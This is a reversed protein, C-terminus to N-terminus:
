PYHYYLNPVGNTSRWDRWGYKVEANGSVDMVFPQIIKCKRFGYSEYIKELKEPNKANAIELIMPIKCEDLCEHFIEKLIKRDFSEANKMTKMEEKTKAQSSVYVLDYFLTQTQVDYDQNIGLTFPLLVHNENIAQVVKRSRMMKPDDYGPAPKFYEPNSAMWQSSLLAFAQPISTFVGKSNRNQIYDLRYVIMHPRTKEDGNQYSGYSKNFKDLYSDIESPLFQGRSLKQMCAAKKKQVASKSGSKNSIGMFKWFGDKDSIRQKTLIYTLVHKENTESVYEEGLEFQRKVNFAVPITDMIPRDPVLNRFQTSKKEDVHQKNSDASLPSEAQNGFASMAVSSNAIGNLKLPSPPKAASESSSSSSSASSLSLTLSPTVPDHNARQANMTSPLMMQMMQFVQKYESLYNAGLYYEYESEHKNFDGPKGIIESALRADSSSMFRYPYPPRSANQKQLIKSMLYKYYLKKRNEPVDLKRQNIEMNLLRNFSESITEYIQPVLTNRDIMELIAHRFKDICYLNLAKKTYNSPLQMTSLSSSSSSSSSSVAPLPTDHGFLFRLTSPSFLKTKDSISLPKLVRLHDQEIVNTFGNRLESILNRSRPCMLLIKICMDQLLTNDQSSKLERDSLLFEMENKTVVAFNTNNLQDNHVLIPIHPTPSRSHRSSLSLSPPIETQKSPSRDMRLEYPADRLNELNLPSDIKHKPSAVKSSNLPQLPHLPLPLLLPPPPHLATSTSSQSTEVAASSPRSSLPSPTNPSPYGMDIVRSTLEDISPSSNARRGAVAASSSSSALTSSSSASSAAISTPIILLPPPPVASAQQPQLPKHPLLLPPPPPPPSSLSSSAAVAAQPQHPNQAQPLSLPPPPFSAATLPLPLPLLPQHPKQSLPLPLPPLPPEIVRSVTQTSLNYSIHDNNFSSSSSSSSASPPPPPVRPPSLVGNERKEDDVDDDDVNAVEKDDTDDNKEQDDGTDKEGNAEKEADNFFEYLKEHAKEYDAVSVDQNHNRELIANIQQTTAINESFFPGFYAGHIDRIRAWAKSLHTKGIKRYKISPELNLIDSVQDNSLDLGGMLRIMRKRRYKENADSKTRKWGNAKQKRQKVIKAAGFPKYQKAPIDGDVSIKEKVTEEKWVSYDKVEERAAGKTEQLNRRLVFKLDDVRKADEHTNEDEHVLAEWEAFPMIERLIIEKEYQRKSELDNVIDIFNHVLGLIVDHKHVLQGASRTSKDKNLEALFATANWPSKGNRFRKQFQILSNRIKEALVKLRQVITWIQITTGKIDKQITHVFQDLIMRNYIVIWRKALNAGERYAKLRLPKMLDQTKKDMFRMCKREMAENEVDTVRQTQEDMLRGLKSKHNKYSPGSNLIADIAKTNRSQRKDDDSDSSSM